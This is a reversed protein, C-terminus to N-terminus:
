TAKGRVALIQALAQEVPVATVDGREYADIRERIETSWAAEREPELEADDLSALLEGALAARMDAPFRLAEDVVRKADMSVITGRCGRIALALCQRQARSNYCRGLSEESQPLRRARMGRGVGPVPKGAAFGATGGRDPELEDSTDRCRLRGGMVRM